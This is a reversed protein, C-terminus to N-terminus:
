SIEFEFIIKRIELSNCIADAAGLLENKGAEFMWVPLGGKM